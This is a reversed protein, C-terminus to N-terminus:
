GVTLARLLEAHLGPGAALASTGSVADDGSWTTIVGGAGEIVPILPLLDWPNMVPDMMADARGTALLLYGYCDGWGRYTGARRALADFREYSGEPLNAEILGPDTTLVTAEGIPPEPRIRAPRGNLTTGSATGIVLEGTIPQHIMGLVPRGNRLLGVLTGFLAVGAVFSITGDIPDLIWVFEADAREDGFEEGIIGHSPFERTIMERLVLEAERDAVTVPSADDKTDVRLDDSQFHRRLVEGSREGLRTTFPRLADADLTTEPDHIM